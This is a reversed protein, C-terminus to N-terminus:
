SHPTKETAILMGFGHTAMTIAILGLGWLVEELSTVYNLDGVPIDM